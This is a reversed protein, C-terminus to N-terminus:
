QISQSVWTQSSEHATTKQLITRWDLTWSSHCGTPWPQHQHISWRKRCQPTGAAALKRRWACRMSCGSASRFTLQAPYYLPLLTVWPQWNQNGSYLRKQLRPNYMPVATTNWFSRAAHSIPIKCRKPPNTWKMYLKPSYLAKQPPWADLNTGCCKKANKDLRTVLHRAGCHDSANSQSSECSSRGKNHCWGSSRSRGKRLPRLSQCIDSIYEFVAYVWTLCFARQFTNLFQVPEIVLGSADPALPDVAVDAPQPKAVAPLRSALWSPWSCMRKCSFETACAKRQTRM